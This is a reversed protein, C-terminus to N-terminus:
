PTPEKYVIVCREKYLMSDAFYPKIDVLDGKHAELWNNIMRMIEDQSEGAFYKVRERM